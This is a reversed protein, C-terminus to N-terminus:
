ESGQGSVLEPDEIESNWKSKSMQFKKKVWPGKM